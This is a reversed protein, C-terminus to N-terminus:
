DDYEEEEEESYDLYDEEYSYESQKQPDVYQGFDELKGDQMYTETEQQVVPRPLFKDLVTALAPPIATPFEVHFKIYLNGKKTSNKVPFGEGEIKLVQDPSIVRGITPIILKRDGLHDVVLHSGCLAQTLTIEKHMLLDNGNLVFTPDKKQHIYVLSHIDKLKIIDGGRTGPEIKVQKNMLKEITGKGYCRQCIDEDDIIYGKGLCTSCTQRAQLNGYAPDVFIYKFGHGNCSHCIEHPMRSQTGNGHCHPCSVTLKIRLPLTCGLYLNKLSVDLNFHQWDDVDYYYDEEEEEEDYYSYDQQQQKQPPSYNFNSHLIQLSMELGYTDYMRRLQPKSLIEYATQVLFHEDKNFDGEELERSTNLYAKQIENLSANPNVGLADYLITDKPM